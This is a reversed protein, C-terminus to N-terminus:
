QISLSLLSTSQTYKEKCWQYKALLKSPVYELNSCPAFGWNQYFGTLHEFPICYITQGLKAHSLLFKVIEAAIGKGRYAALVYMGGLECIKDDIKVLRGLGAKENNYEAIAILEQEFSSSVFEAEKYRQNVWDMESKTATRIKLM